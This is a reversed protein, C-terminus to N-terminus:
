NEINLTKKHGVVERLPHVSPFSYWLLGPQSAKVRGGMMTKKYSAPNM